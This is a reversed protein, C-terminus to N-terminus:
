LARSVCNAAALLSKGYLEAEKANDDAETLLKEDEATLQGAERMQDIDMQEPFSGDPQVGHQAALARMDESTGVRAAAASLGDPPVDPRPPSMDTAPQRGREPLSAFLSGADSALGNNLTKVQSPEFAIWQEANYDSLEATRDKEPLPEVRIGDHGAEILDRKVMPVLDGTRGRSQYSLYERASMVKPNKIALNAEIIRANPDRQRTDRDQTFLEAISRDGTFHIGFEAAPNQSRRGLKKLDFSDFKAVTAHYVTLPRGAADVVKTGALEPQSRGDGEGAGAGQPNNGRDAGATPEGRSQRSREPGAGTDAASFLDTEADNIAHELVGLKTAAAADGFLQPRGLEEAADAIKGLRIAIADRGASRNFDDTKYFARVMAKSELSMEGDLIDLQGMGEKIVTPVPRGERAAQERWSSLKRLATTLEPTVDFEPSIEGAKIARRMLAWKGAVDSMAGVISTTNDDTAEAFRRIVSPDVDGYATAVLAREIRRQGDVSLAGEKDLLAGRENAPLRALFRQVFPKNAVSTVPGEGLQQLTGDDLANSDMAALESPSMRATASGNAEANFQARAEPSLDTTRRQVLVPQSMGETSYGRAEIASRYATAQEPYAEYARQIAAVRGNGSDVINDPGIIPAGRDAEVSPMLRAPDLNRGIDEIQAASAARTRDRVQLDGAAAILDRLEVVEPKVEVRAGSPTIVVQGAREATVGQTERNLAVAGDRKVAVEDAMRQLTAASAPTLDVEGKTALGTVADNVVGRAEAVNPVTEVSSQVRDAARSRYAENLREVGFGLGHLVPSVVGGIVAAMAINNIQAQWSVDDGFQARDPASLLSFAATNIAAESANLMLHGFVTGFRAVAAARAAPGFVPVYNIPDMAQGMFSGLTYAIPNKSGYYDKAQDTDYQTALSAARDETMGPDWPVAERFYPSAEYSAKDMPAGTTPAGVVSRLAEYGAVLGGTIPNAALGSELPGMPENGRPTSFDRPVQGFGFSRTINDMGWAWTKLPSFPMDLANQLLTERDAVNYTPSPSIGTM